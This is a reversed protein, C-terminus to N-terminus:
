LVPCLWRISEAAVSRSEAGVCTSRRRRENRSLSTGAPPKPWSKTKWEISRIINARISKAKARCHTWIALQQSSEKHLDLLGVSDRCSLIMISCLRMRKHNQGAMIRHKPRPQGRPGRERSIKGEEDTFDQFGHYSFERRGANADMLTSKETKLKETL